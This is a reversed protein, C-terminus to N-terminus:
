DAASTLPEGATLARLEALLARILETLDPEGSQAFGASSPSASIAIQLRVWSAQARTPWAVSACHRPSARPWRQWSTCSHGAAIIAQRQRASRRGRCEQLM